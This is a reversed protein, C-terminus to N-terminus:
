EHEAHEAHQRALADLLDALAAPDEIMPFHGGAIETAEIGLLERAMFREWAPEFFEDDTAYVLATPIDPHGSLPYEGAPPAMPLLRHALARSTKRPLRSYMATIASEPDWVSEGDARTPPFPFGERFITPAGPPSPFPGLRPCLHVLLAGPLQMAVLPAYASGMSHGVVVLSETAGEVMKLAPRTREAYGAMPDGYPLDPAVVEHGRARLHGTLPNWCSGDHWAGHILCFTSV